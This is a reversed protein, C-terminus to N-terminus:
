GSVAFIVYTHVAYFSVCTIHQAVAQNMKHNYYQITIAKFVLGILLAFSLRRSLTDLQLAQIEHLANRALIKNPCIYFIVNLNFFKTKAILNLPYFVITSNYSEM